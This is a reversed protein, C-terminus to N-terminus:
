TSSTRACPKMGPYAFAIARPVRHSVIAFLEGPHPSASSSLRRAQLFITQYGCALGRAGSAFRIM